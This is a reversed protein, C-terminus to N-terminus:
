FTKEKGPHLLFFVIFILVHLLLISLRLVPTTELTPVSTVYPSVTGLVAVEFLPVSPRCTLASINRELVFVRKRFMDKREMKVLADCVEFSWRPQFLISTLNTAEVGPRASRGAFADTFKQTILCVLAFADDERRPYFCCSAFYLCFFPNKRERFFYIEM